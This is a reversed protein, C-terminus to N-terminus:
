QSSNQDNPEYSIPQSAQLSYPQLAQLYNLKGAEQGVLRM